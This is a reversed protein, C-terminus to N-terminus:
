VCEAENGRALVFSESHQQATSRGLAQIADLAAEGSGLDIKLVWERDGRVM